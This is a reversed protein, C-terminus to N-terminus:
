TPTIRELRSFRTIKIKHIIKIMPHNKLSGIITMIIQGKLKTMKISNQKLTKIITVILMMIWVKTQNSQQTIVSKTIVSNDAIMTVIIMTELIKIMTEIIKTVIIMTEIIM